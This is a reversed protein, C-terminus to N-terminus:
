VAAFLCEEVATDTNFGRGSDSYFVALLQFWIGLLELYILLNTIIAGSM